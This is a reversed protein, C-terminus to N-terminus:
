VQQPLRSDLTTESVTPISNALHDITQIPKIPSTIEDIFYLNNKFASGIGLIRNFIQLPKV